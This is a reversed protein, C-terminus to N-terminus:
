FGVGGGRLNGKLSFWLFPFTVWFRADPNQGVGMNGKRVNSFFSTRSICPILFPIVGFLVMWGTTEQLPIRLNM